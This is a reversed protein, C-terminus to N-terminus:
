SGKWKNCKHLYKTVINRGVSTGQRLMSILYKFVWSKRFLHAFLLSMIIGREAYLKSMLSPSQVAPMWLLLILPALAVLTEIFM